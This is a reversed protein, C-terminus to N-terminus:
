LTRGFSGGLKGTRKTYRDQAPERSESRGRKRVRRTRDRDESQQVQSHHTSSPGAGGMHIIPEVRTQNAEEQNPIEETQDLETDERTPIISNGDLRLQRNNPHDYWDPFMHGKFRKWLGLLWPKGLLIDFGGTISEVVLFFGPLYPGEGINIPVDAAYMVTIPLDEGMPDFPPTPLVNVPLGLMRQADRTMLNFLCGSEMAARIPRNYIKFHQVGETATLVRDGIPIEYKAKFRTQTYVYEAEEMTLQEENPRIRARLHNVANNYMEPLGHDKTRPLRYRRRMAEIAGMWPREPEQAVETETGSVEEEQISREEGPQVEPERMIEDGDEAFEGSTGEGESEEVTDVNPEESQSRSDGGGLVAHALAMTMHPIAARGKMNRKSTSLRVSISRGDKRGDPHLKMVTYPEGAETDWSLEALYSRLFPQGLIIKFHSNWDDSEFFTQRLTFGGLACPVDNFKAYLSQIEGSVNRLRFKSGSNDEAFYQRLGQAIERTIINIEAGSDIMAVMNGVNGLRLVFCGTPSVATEPNPSPEQEDSAAYVTRPLQDEYRLGVGYGENDSREPEPGSKESESDSSDSTYTEQHVAPFVDIMEEDEGQSKAKAVPIARVRVDGALNRGIEPSVAILDGLPLTIGTGLVQKYIAGVDANSGLTSKFKTKPTPRVIKEPGPNPIRPDGKITFDSKQVNPQRKLITPVNEKAALPTKSPTKFPKPPPAPLKPAKEETAVTPKPGTKSGSGQNAREQVPIANPGTVVGRHGDRKPPPPLEVYPRPRSRRDQYKKEESWQVNKKPPLPNYRENPKEVRDVAMVHHWLTPSAGLEDEDSEYGAGEPDMVEAFAVQPSHTNGKRTATQRSSAANRVAELLSEGPRTRPFGSHDPMFIRGNELICVGERVATLAEPCNATGRAHAEEKRCFFCRNRPDGAERPRAQRQDMLVRTDNRHDELEKMVLKMLNVVRSNSPEQDLDMNRPFEEPVSPKTKASLAIMLELERIRDTLDAVGGKAYGLDMDSVSEKPTKSRKEPKLRAKISSSKKSPKPDHKKMTKRRAREDASDESSSSDETSTTDSKESESDGSDSNESDTEDTDSEDFLAKGKKPKGRHKTRGEKDQRTRHKSKTKRLDAFVSEKDLIDVVAKRVNAISPAERKDLNPDRMQLEFRIEQRLTKPLGIWFMRNIDSTTINVTLAQARRCFERHYEAFERRSAVQHKKKVFRELDERRFKGRYEDSPYFNRLAQITAPWDRNIVPSLTKVFRAISSRCYSALNTCRETDTWGASTTAIRYDDLFRQLNKGKFRPAQDSTPMPMSGRGVQFRSLTDLLAQIESGSRRHKHAPKREDRSDRKPEIGTSSIGIEDFSSEEGEDEDETESDRCEHIRQGLTDHAMENPRPM